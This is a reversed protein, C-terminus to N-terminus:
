HNVPDLLESKKMLLALMPPYKPIKFQNGSKPVTYVGDEKQRVSVEGQTASKDSFHSSLKHLLDYKIIDPRGLILNYPTDLIRASVDTMHCLEMSGEDKLDLNFSVEGYSTTCMGKVGTCVRM